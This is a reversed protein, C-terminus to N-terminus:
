KLEKEWLIKRCTGETGTHCIAVVSAKFNIPLHIPEVEKCRLTVHPYYKSFSHEQFENLHSPAKTEEGEKKFLEDVTADYSFFPLLAKMLEEHMKQITPTKKVSLAYSKSGDKKLISKLQNLEINLSSYRQAIKKVVKEVKLLDKEKITGMALSIHPYFDDKALPGRAQCKKAAKKNIDIILDMIEQPPLLVLDIAIKNM